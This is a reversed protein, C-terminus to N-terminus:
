KGLDYVYIQRNNVSYLKNNHLVVGNLRINLSGMQEWPSWEQNVLSSKYIKGGLEVYIENKALAISKGAGGLDNIGNDMPIDGGIPTFNGGLNTFNNLYVTQVSDHKENPIAVVKDNDFQWFYGQHLLSNFGGFLQWSGDSTSYYLQKDSLSQVVITTGNIAAGQAGAFVQGQISWNKCNEIDCYMIISGRLSESRAWIYIKGDSISTLEVITKALIPLAVWPENHSSCVVKSDMNPRNKEDLGQYLLNVCVHGKDDTALRPNYSNFIPDYYSAGGVPQWNSSGDSRWVFYNDTAYITNGAGFSIHWPSTIPLNQGLTGWNQGRVTLEQRILPYNAAEILISSKGNTKGTVYFGCKAPVPGAALTVTACSNASIAAVDPNTSTVTVHVPKVNFAELLGVEFYHSGGTVVDFQNDSGNLELKGYSAAPAAETAGGGNCGSIPLALILCAVIILKAQYNLM